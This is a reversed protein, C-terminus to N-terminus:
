QGRVQFLQPALVVRLDPNYYDYLVSRVSKAVMGIRPKFKFAFNIGGAQPWLYMAIRDPLVEYSALAWGAVDRAAELSARDVDVGPPLGVEALLMGYGSFGIRDVKVKCEISEGRAAANRDFSVELGLRTNSNVGSDVSRALSWPEYWSSSLLALPTSAGQHSVLRLDNSGCRLHPSLDFRLPGGRTEDSMDRAPEILRGNLRVQLPGVRNGDEASGTVPPLLGVLAELALVTAQGTLWIGWRDKNRMLFQAGGDRWRRIEDPDVAPTPKVGRAASLTQVVLATTELRGARGWGWFVSNTELTWYATTGERKALEVLRKVAREAEETQGLRLAAQGYLAIVYPDSTRDWTRGLYTGANELCTHITRGQKSDIPLVPPFVGEADKLDALIRTIWATLSISQRIDEQDEKLYRHAPWHGDAAQRAFLARAARRILEEDIATFDRAAMLFRLAYATLALNPEGDRWYAFGGGALSFSTLRLCSLGLDRVARQKVAASLRGGAREYQLLLVTPYTSSIIQEPCGNPNARIGAIADIIHSG